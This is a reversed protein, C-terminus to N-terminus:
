IPFPVVEDSDPFKLMVKYGKEILKKAMMKSHVNNNQLIMRRERYSM